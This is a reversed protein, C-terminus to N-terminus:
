LLVILVINIQLCHRHLFVNFHNVFQTVCSPVRWVSGNPKLRNMLQCKKSGGVKGFCQISKAEHMGYM